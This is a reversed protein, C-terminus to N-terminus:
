TTPSTMAAAASNTPAPRATPPSRCGNAMKWGKGFSNCRAASTYGCNAAASPLERMPKPSPSPRAPSDPADPPSILWTRDLASEGNKQLWVRWIDDELVIIHLLHRDEVSLTIGDPNEQALTWNKHTKM